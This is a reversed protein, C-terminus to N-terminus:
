NYGWADLGNREDYTITRWFGDAANTYMLREGGWDCSDKTYASYYYYWYGGAFYQANCTGSHHDFGLLHGFEHLAAIYAYVGCSVALCNRPGTSSTHEWDAMASKNIRMVDTITTADAIAPITSGYILFTCRPDDWFDAPYLWLENLTVNGMESDWDEIAKRIINKQAYSFGWADSATGRAICYYHTGNSQAKSGTYAAVPMTALTFLLGILALSFITKITKTM